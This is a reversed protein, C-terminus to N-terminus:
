KEWAEETEELNLPNGPHTCKSCPPNIHCSCSMDLDDFEDRLTQYEGTLKREPVDEYVQEGSIVLKNDFPPTTKAQIDKVKQVLNVLLTQENCGALEGGILTLIDAIMVVKNPAMGAKAQKLFDPDRVASVTIVGNIDAKIRLLRENIDTSPSLSQDADYVKKM